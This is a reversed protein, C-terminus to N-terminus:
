NCFQHHVVRASIKPLAMPTVADSIERMDATMEEVCARCLAVDERLLMMVLCAYYKECRECPVKEEIPAESPWGSILVEM